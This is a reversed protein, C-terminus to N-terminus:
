KKPRPPKAHPQQRVQQKKAAGAVAIAALQAASRTEPGPGGPPPSPMRQGPPLSAMRKRLTSNREDQNRDSGSSSTTGHPNPNPKKAM